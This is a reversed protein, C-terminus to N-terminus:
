AGCKIAPYSEPAELLRGHPEEDESEDKEEGPGNKRLRLRTVLEFREEVAHDSRM